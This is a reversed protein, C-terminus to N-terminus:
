RHCIVLSTMAECGAGLTAGTIKDNRRDIIRKIQFRNMWPKIEPDDVRRLIVKAANGDATDVTGCWLCRFHDGHRNDKATYGCQSCEQSTYASAVAQQHSGRVKM